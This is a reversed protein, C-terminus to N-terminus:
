AAKPKPKPAPNSAHLWTAFVVVALVGWLRPPLVEGRNVSEAVGTLFLGFLIASGKAVAGLYKTILGTLIGGLAQTAVPVFTYPTFGRLLGAPDAGAGLLAKGALLPASVVAMELTLASAGGSAKTAQVAVQTLAAALGSLASAFLLFSVATPDTAKSPTGADGDALQLLVGAATILGLAVVQPFSQRVGFFVWLCAATAATKLQNLVNFTVADVGHYALQLCVNQLAYVVAPAGVRLLAAPESCLELLAERAGGAGLAACCLAAKVVETVLVLASKDTGAAVCRATLLPQAAFQLALGALCLFGLGAARGDRTERM